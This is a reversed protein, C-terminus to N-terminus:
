QTGRSGVLNALRSRTGRTQKEVSGHTATSRWRPRLTCPQGAWLPLLRLSPVLEPSANTDSNTSTVILLSLRRHRYSGLFPSTYVSQYAATAEISDATPALEHWKCRLEMVAHGPAFRARCMGPGVGWDDHLTIFESSDALPSRSDREFTVSLLVLSKLSRARDLDASVHHGGSAPVCGFRIVARRSRNGTLLSKGASYRSNRLSYSVRRSRVSEGHNM